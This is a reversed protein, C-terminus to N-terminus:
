PQEDGENTAAKSPKKPEIVSLGMAHAKRASRAWFAQRQKATLARLREHAKFKWQDVEDLFADLDSSM